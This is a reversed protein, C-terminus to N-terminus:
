LLAVRRDDISVSHRRDHGPVVRRRSAGPLHNVRSDASSEVSTVGIAHSDARLACGTRPFPRAWRWSSGIRVFSREAQNHPSWAFCHFSSRMSSLFSGARGVDFL